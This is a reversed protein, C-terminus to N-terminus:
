MNRIKKWFSWGDCWEMMVGDNWYIESIKRWNGCGVVDDQSARMIQMAYGNPILMSERSSQGHSKLVNIQNVPYKAKGQLNVMQLTRPTKPDDCPQRLLLSVVAIKVAKKLFFLWCSDYDFIESNLNWQQLKLIEFRKLYTVLIPPFGVGQCGQRCGRHDSLLRRKWIRHIQLILVDQRHQDLHGPPIRPSPVSCASCAIYFFSKKECGFDLLDLWRAGAWTCWGEPESEGSFSQGLQRKEVARQFEQGKRLKAIRSERVGDQIYKISERMALRYGAIITESDVVEFVCITYSICKKWWFWCHFCEFFSEHQCLLKIMWNMQYQTKLEKDIKWISSQSSHIQSNSPHQEEGAWQSTEVEYLFSEQCWKSLVPLYTMISPCFGTLWILPARFYGM